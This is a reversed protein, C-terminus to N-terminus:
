REQVCQQYGKTKPFSHNQLPTSPFEAGDGGDDQLYLRTSLTSNTTAGTRTCTIYASLVRERERGVLISYQYLPLIM